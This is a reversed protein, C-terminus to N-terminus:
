HTAQAAVATHAPQFNFVSAANGGLIRRQDVPNLNAVSRRIMDPAAMSSDIHPFDSGWLIRDHGVLELQSGITREEPEAVFYVNRRIYESPRMELRRTWSFYDYKEDMRDMMYAAWGAGSEVCVVKLDAHRDFVGDSVMSTIAPILQLTGGVTFNFLGAATGAVPLIQKASDSSSTSVCPSAQRQVVPGSPTSTLTGPAGAV